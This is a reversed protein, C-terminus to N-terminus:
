RERDGARRVITITHSLISKVPSTWHMPDDVLDCLGNPIHQGGARCPPGIDAVLVFWVELIILVAADEALLVRTVCTFVETM